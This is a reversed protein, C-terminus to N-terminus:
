KIYGVKVYCDSLLTTTQTAAVYVNGNFTGIIANASPTFSTNYILASVFKSDAVGFINKTTGINRPTQSWSTGATAKPITVLKYYVVKDGM